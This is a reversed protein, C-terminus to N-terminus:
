RLVIAASEPEGNESDLCELKYDREEEGGTENSSIHMAENASHKQNQDTPPRTLSAWRLVTAAPELEGNESDRYEPEHERERNKGAQGTRDQRDQRDTQGDTQEMLLILVSRWKLLAKDLIARHDFTHALGSWDNM